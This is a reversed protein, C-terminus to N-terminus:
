TDHDSRKESTRADVKAYRQCRQGRQADARDRRPEDGAGAGLLHDGRQPM